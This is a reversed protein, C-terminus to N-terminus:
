GVRVTLMSTHVPCPRSKDSDLLSLTPEARGAQVCSPARSSGSLTEHRLLVGIMVMVAIMVTVALM